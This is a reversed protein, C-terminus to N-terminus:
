WTFRCTPMEGRQGGQGPRGSMCGPKSLTSVGDYLPRASRRRQSQYEASPSAVDPIGRSRSSNMTPRDIALYGRMKM